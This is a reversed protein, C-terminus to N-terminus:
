CPTQISKALTGSSHMVTGSSTGEDRDGTIRPFGFLVDLDHLIAFASGGCSDQLGHLKLSSFLPPLPSSTVHFLLDLGVWGLPGTNQPVKPFLNHIQDWGGCESVSTRAM